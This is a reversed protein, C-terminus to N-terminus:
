FTTKLTLYVAGRDETAGSGSASALGGAYCTYRQTGDLANPTAGDTAGDNCDTTKGFADVYKLDVYYQNYIAASVGVAYNGGDEAGGAVVPSVGDIGVNVSLLRGSIEGSM